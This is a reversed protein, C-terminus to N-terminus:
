VDTYSQIINRVKLVLFGSIYQVIIQSYELNETLNM